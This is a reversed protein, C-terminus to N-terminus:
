DGDFLNKEVAECITHGIMVSVEQIRPTNSSPVQIGMKSEAIAKNTKNGTISITHINMENAKKIAEIINQSNGSTSLCILVDGENCHAEVARAFVYDFSFDNSIATIFSSNVHLAEAPLAKRNLYFRGSLEAALHQADAASGGNGCFWIRRGSNFAETILRIIDNVQAFIREDNLLDTMVKAAERFNFELLKNM